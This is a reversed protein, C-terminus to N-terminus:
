RRRKTKRRGGKAYDYSIYRNRHGYKNVLKAHSRRRKYEDMRFDRRWTMFGFPSTFVMDDRNEPHQGLYTNNDEGETAYYAGIEMPNGKTDLVVEGAENKNDM